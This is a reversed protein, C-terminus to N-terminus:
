ALPQVLTFTWKVVKGGGVDVSKEGSLAFSQGFPVTKPAALVATPAGQDVVIVVVEDPKSKNGSDDEVELRFTHRGVPLPNTAPVTVEIVPNNSPVPVNTKFEAM